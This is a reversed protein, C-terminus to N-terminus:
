TWYRLTGVFLVSISVLAYCRSGNTRQRPDMQANANLTPPTLGGKFGVHCKEHPLNTISVLTKLCHQRYKNSSYQTNNSRHQTNNSIHQINHSTYYQQHTKLTTQATNLTTQPTSFRTQPTNLTTLNTSHQQPTNHTTQATNHKLQTLICLYSNWPIWGMFYDKVEQCYYGELLNQDFIKKFLQRLTAEITM